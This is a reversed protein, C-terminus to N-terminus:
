DMSFNTDVRNQITMTLDSNPKNLSTKEKEWTFAKDLGLQYRQVIMVLMLIAEMFAFRKGFCARSGASFPLYIYEYKNDLATIFRDPDFSDSKAM